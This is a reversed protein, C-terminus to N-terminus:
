PSQNQIRINELGLPLGVAEDNMRVYEYTAHVYLLLTSRVSLLERVCYTLVM